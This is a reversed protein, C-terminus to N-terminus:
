VTHEINQFQYGKESHGTLFYGKGIYYILVCVRKSRCSKTFNYFFVGKRCFYCKGVRFSSLAACQGARFFYGKEDNNKNVCRYVVSM